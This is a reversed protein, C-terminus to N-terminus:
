SEICIQVKLSKFLWIRELNYGFHNGIYVNKIVGASFMVSNEIKWNKGCPRWRDVNYKRNELTKQM